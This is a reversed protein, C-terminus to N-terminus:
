LSTTLLLPLPSLFTLIRYGRHPAAEGSRRIEATGEGPGSDISNSDRCREKRVARFQDASGSLKKDAADHQTHDTGDGPQEENTGHNFGLLFAM